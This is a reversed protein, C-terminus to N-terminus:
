DPFLAELDADDLKIGSFDIEDLNKPRVPVAFPDPAPAARYSSLLDSVQRPLRCTKSVEVFGKGSEFNYRGLCGQGVNEQEFFLIDAYMDKDKRILEYNQQDFWAKGLYRYRQNNLEKFIFNECFGERCNAGVIHEAVGDGDIDNRSTFIYYSGTNEKVVQAPPVTYVRGIDPSFDKAELGASLFSLCFLLTLRQLM